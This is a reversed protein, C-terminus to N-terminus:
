HSRLRGYISYPALQMAYEGMHTRIEIANFDQHSREAGKAPRNGVIFGGEPIYTMQHQSRVLQVLCGAIISM